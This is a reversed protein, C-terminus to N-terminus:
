ASTGIIRLKGTVATGSSSNALKLIDATAATVTWGAAPAVILFKGGPQVQVTHTAAGFPGVFQNSAANGIVIDNTNTSDAEVLIAKIKVFTLTTGFADVLSGALDYTQNGSAAINIAVQYALDAAGSGTGSTLVIPDSAVINLQPTDVGSGRYVGEITARITTLLSAHAQLALGAVLALAVVSGLLKKMPLEEEAPHFILDRQQRARGPGPRDM